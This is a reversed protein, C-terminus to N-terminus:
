GTGGSPHPPGGRGPEQDRPAPLAVAPWRALVALTAVLGAGGMVLIAPGGGLRGGLAGALLFGFPASGIAAMIVGAVRVRVGPPALHIPLTAQMASFGSMGVGALVLVGFAAPGGPALPLMTVAAFFGACGLGFIPGFWRPRALALIAVSTMLAGTGEGAAVLGAGVPGLGLGERALLPFLGLYPLGFLNLVFTLAIVAVLRPDARVVRVGEALAPLLATRAAVARGTGAAAAAAPPLGRVLWAGSLHLVAGALFVGTLGGAALVAGGLVPGVLRTAHTTVMELGMTVAARGEGGAEAMATRRVPIEVCWFIGAAMALLLLAWLDLWGTAAALAAGLQVLALAVYAAMLLRRPECREALAAAPAGILLLPLFRAFSAVAVALPSGTRELVYLGFALVELWRMVGAGVGALWLRRVAPLALVALRDTRRRRMAVTSM